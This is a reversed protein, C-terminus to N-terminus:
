QCLPPPESQMRDLIASYDPASCRAWGDPMCGDEYTLYVAGDSLRVHCAQATAVGGVSICSLTEDPGKCWEAGIAFGLLAETDPPCDGSAAPVCNAGADAISGGVNQDMAAASGDVESDTDSQCATLALVLAIYSKM